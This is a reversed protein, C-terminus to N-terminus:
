RRYLISKTVEMTKRLAQLPITPKPGPEVVPWAEVFGGADGRPTYGDLGRLPVTPECAHAKTVERYEVSHSMM